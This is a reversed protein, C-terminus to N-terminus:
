TRLLVAKRSALHRLAYAGGGLCGCAISIGLPVWGMPTFGLYRALPPIYMTMVVLGITGIAILFATRNFPRNTDWALHSKSKAMFILFGNAIVFALMVMSRAQDTSDASTELLSATWYASLASALVWLGLGFAELMAQTGFLPAQTDRPPSTMCEPSEPENEFALSCAPDIIMELLAIHLPLFLAPLAFLMPLLALVAIPIHIAFIYAMSRQLNTFIRRGIRIGRVISAFDDNILVLDSAERAVDTGRSGMAVGVHAARLAPADNVGDGTMTVIEGNRQLAQVIRLKQHPSIRACVNVTQIRRQLTADDMAQVEDGTLVDGQPMGAQAAIVRATDPYDGTIMVVRIGALHCEAMASPVEERVPDSLGILGLCEFEFDHESKPWDTGTHRGEAVALVRLGKQALQAVATTWHAQAQPTMHCLSIIAEPAGKASIVYQSTNTVRWVHSMARLEPSLPYTQVLEWNAHLHPTDALWTQGFQHFAMEMPDFPNASSALIAHEVVAHFHEPLTCTEMGPTVYFIAKEAGESAVLLAQVTMRNQTLTGTKDTCLVTTAGLTEIANIRRTLVGQKALRHAGLAPFVALVVPYEEPLMAMALAIGSLVAPLWEGTRWGLTLVMATCLVLGITSLIKVLQQTQRHLPTEESTLQNLTTGIKGIETRPGTATVQVLAQGRIVFTGSYVRACAEEDLAMHKEVAISEGTLLSEDVELNDAKLLVGDAPIRDGESIVLVDDKVINAFPLKVQQGDRIVQATHQNLERLAEISRDSKGEQYLTLGLVAIVFVGLTLGEGLDGLILYIVAAVLLLVFMPEHCMDWIRDLWTRRRSAEQSNPGEEIFRLAAIDQSLGKFAHRSETKL